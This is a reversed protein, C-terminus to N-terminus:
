WVMLGAKGAIASYNGSVKQALVGSVALVARETTNYEM